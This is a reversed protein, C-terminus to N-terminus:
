DCKQTSSTIISRHCCLFLKFLHCSALLFMRSVSYLIETQRLLEKELNRCSARTRTIGAELAQSELRLNKDAEELRKLQQESRYLTSSLRATEDQITKMNKGETELMEDLQKLREQSNSSNNKFKEFKERMAKQEELAAQLAAEKDKEEMLLQRNHNRLNNLKQSEAQVTKRLALLESKKLTVDSELKLLRNRLESSVINLEQILFETGRNEDQKLRMTSEERRLATLKDASVKKANEIEAEAEKIEQERQNMQNVADKWTNVLHRRELHAQRYLQSTRELLLELAKKEEYANVLFAQQKIIAEHLLKRKSDLAEAKGADMRCFKEIMKKAEDGSSMVQRWEVLASKAWQVGEALKDIMVSLKEREGTFLVNITM